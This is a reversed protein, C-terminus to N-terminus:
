RANKTAIWSQWTAERNRAKRIQVEKSDKIKQYGTEEIVLGFDTLLYGVASVLASIVIVILAGTINPSDLGMIGACVGLFGIVFISLGVKNRM